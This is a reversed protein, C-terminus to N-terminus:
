PRHTRDRDQDRHGHSARVAAIQGRTFDGGNIEEHMKQLNALTATLARVTEPHLHFLAFESTIVFTPLTPFRRPNRRLYDSLSYRPSQSKAKFARYVTPFTNIDQDYRSLDKAAVFLLRVTKATETHRTSSETLLLAGTVGVFVRIMALLYDTLPLWRESLEGGGERERPSSRHSRSRRHNCAVHNDKPAM